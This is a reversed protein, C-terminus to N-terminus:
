FHEFDLFFGKTYGSLPDDATIHFNQKSALKDFRTMWDDKLTAASSSYAKQDTFINPPGTTM